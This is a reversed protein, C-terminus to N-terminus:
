DVKSFSSALLMSFPKDLCNRALPVADLLEQVLSWMGCWTSTSCWHFQRETGGFYIAHDSNEESNLSM